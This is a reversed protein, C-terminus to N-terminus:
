GDKWGDMTRGNGGAQMGVLMGVLMLRLFGSQVFTILRLSKKRGECETLDGIRSGVWTSDM